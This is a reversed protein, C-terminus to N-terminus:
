ISQTLGGDVLLAVGTVYSAQASCLFCAVAAFEEVTGLRRAPVQERAAAEAAERSGGIELMRDTAIRGPLVSNVTVGDSAVARALTKFAALLASRHANSLMLVPIPERVSSSAVNVVRGWGRERMRPLTEEILAMPALVLDRYATEWQERTFGLPDPGAPPGGTNTVLVDIPGLDSEVAAILDPASDLDQSDHVYGRAGVEAATADIRERSRSSIAVKAGEAALAQAIGRGLGKSAGTVLAVKGDLGLNVARLSDAYSLALKVASPGPVRREDHPHHNAASVASLHAPANEASGIARMVAYAIAAAERERELAAPGGAEDDLGRTLRDMGGRDLLAAVEGGRRARRDLVDTSCVAEPEREWKRLSRVRAYGSHM